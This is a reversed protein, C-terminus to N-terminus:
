DEVIVYEYNAGSSVALAVNVTFSVGASKASVWPPHESAKQNAATIVIRSNATVRSDAVVLSTTSTIITFAGSAVPNIQKDNVLIYQTNPSDIKLTRGDSSTYFRILRSAEGGTSYATDYQWNNNWDIIGEAFNNVNALNWIYNTQAHSYCGSVNWAFIRAGDVHFVDESVQFHCARIEAGRVAGSTAYIGIRTNNVTEIYCSHMSLGNIYETGGVGIVPALHLAYDKLNEFDCGFFCPTDVGRMLVGSGFHDITLGVVTLEHAKEGMYLGYEGTVRNGSNGTIKGGVIRNIFANEAMYLAYDAHNSTNIKIGYFINLQGTVEVLRTDTGALVTTSSVRLNHVRMEQASFLIAGSATPDLICGSFHVEQGNNNFNINSVQYTGSGPFVVTKGTDIAAQVATDNVAASNAEALGFLVPYAADETISRFEQFLAPVQSVIGDDAVGGTGINNVLTIQGAAVSAIKNVELDGSGSLFYEVAAGVVFGTESDVAVVKQGAAAAGNALTAVNSGGISIADLRDDLSSSGGRAAVIEAANTDATNKATTLATDLDSFRSNFLAATAQSGTPIETHHNTSM